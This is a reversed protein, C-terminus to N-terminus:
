DLSIQVIGAEVVRATVVRRSDQQRVAIWENLGGDEKAVAGVTVTAAGARVRLTVPQGGRVLPVPRFMSRRLVTGAGIMRNTMLGATEELGTIVDEPLSTTEIRRTTVDAAAPVAHRGLGRTTVAVRGFTRVKVSVIACARTKEGCLLEVPVSINGRLVPVADCAARLIRPGACPDMRLSSVGRLEIVLDDAPLRVEARVAEVVVRFADNTWEQLEPGAPLTLALVLGLIM